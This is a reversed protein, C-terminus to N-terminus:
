CLSWELEPHMAHIGHGLLKSWFDVKLSWFGRVQLGAESEQRWKRLPGNIYKLAFSKYPRM